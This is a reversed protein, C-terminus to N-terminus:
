KKGLVNRVCYKGTNQPPLRKLATLEVIVDEGESRSRQRYNNAAVSDVYVGNAQDAHGKPLTVISTVFASEWVGREVSGFNMLDDTVKKVISWQFPLHMAQM